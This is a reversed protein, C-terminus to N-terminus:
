LYFTIRSIFSPSSEENKSADTSKPKTTTQSSTNSHKSVLRKNIMKHTSSSAESSNRKKVKSEPQCLIKSDSISRSTSKKSMPSLGQGTKKESFKDGNSRSQSKERADSTSKKVNTMDEKVATVKKKVKGNPISRSRDSDRESIVKEQTLENTSANNKFTGDPNGQQKRTQTQPKSLGDKRLGNLKNNSM